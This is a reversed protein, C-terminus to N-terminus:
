GGRRWVLVSPRWRTRRGRASGRWSGSLEPVLRNSGRGRSSAAGGRTLVSSIVAVVLPEALFGRGFGSAAAAGGASLAGVVLGTAPVILRSRILVSCCFSGNM